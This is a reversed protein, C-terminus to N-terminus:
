VLALFSAHYELGLGVRGGGPSSFRQKALEVLRLQRLLCLGLSASPLAGDGSARPPM